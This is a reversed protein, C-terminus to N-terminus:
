REPAAPSGAPLLAEHLDNRFRHLKQPLWNGPKLFPVGQLLQGPAVQGPNPSGESDGEDGGGAPYRVLLIHTRVVYDPSRNSATRSTKLGMSQYNDFVYMLEEGKSADVLPLGSDPSFKRLQDKIWRVGPFGIALSHLFHVATESGTLTLVSFKRGQNWARGAVLAAASVLMGRKSEDAEGGRGFFAKLFKVLGHPLQELSVDVLDAPGGAGGGCSLCHEFVAGLGEYKNSLHESTHEDVGRRLIAAAEELIRTELQHPEGERRRDGCFELVTELAASATREQENCV